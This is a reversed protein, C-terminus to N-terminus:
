SRLARTSVGGGQATGKPFDAAWQAISQKNQVYKETAVSSDRLALIKTSHSGKALSDNGWRTRGCRLFAFFGLARLGSMKAHKAGERYFLTPASFPSTCFACSQSQLLARKQCSLNAM